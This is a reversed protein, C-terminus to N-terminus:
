GDCRRLWDYGGPPKSRLEEGLYSVGIIYHSRPLRDTMRRSSYLPFSKIGLGWDIYDMLWARQRWFVLLSHM